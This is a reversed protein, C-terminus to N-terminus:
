LTKAVARRSSFYSAVTFSLAGLVLLSAADTPGTAPLEQPSQDTGGAPMQQSQESSDGEDTVENNGDISPTLSGEEASESELTEQAVEIADERRAQEGREKVLYLGGLVVLALVIIGVTLGVGSRTIRVAM